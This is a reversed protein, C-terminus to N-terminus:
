ADYQMKNVTILNKRKYVNVNAKFWPFSSLNKLKTSEAENHSFGVRDLLNKVYEFPQNNVHSHGGQGPHAWSLIIGEKAHRVINDIFIHEFKKPIHEAVELSIIWDYTPIGFQPISLDLFVVRGGSTTECYPAGDYADYSKVKKSDLFIQKYRGPGDGFSAITKDKLFEILGAALDLDTMHNGGDETSDKKCWGGTTSIQTIHECELQGIRQQQQNLIKSLNNRQNICSYNIIIYQYHTTFAYILCIICWAMLLINIRSTPTM